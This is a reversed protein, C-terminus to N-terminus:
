LSMQCGSNSTIDYRRPLSSTHHDPIDYPLLKNLVATGGSVESITYIDRNYPMDDKKDYRFVEYTMTSSNNSSFIGVAVIKQSYTPNQFLVDQQLPLFNTGNIYITSSTNLLHKIANVESGTLYSKKCLRFM